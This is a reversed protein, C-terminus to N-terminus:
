GETVGSTIAWASAAPMVPTFIYGCPLGGKNRWLCLVLVDYPYGGVGLRADRIKLGEIGGESSHLSM